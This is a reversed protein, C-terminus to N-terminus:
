GNRRLLVIGAIIMLPPIIIEMSVGLHNILVLTGMGILIGGLKRVNRHKSLTVSAFTESENSPSVNSSPVIVSAPKPTEFDLKITEGISAVSAAQQIPQGTQPDFKYATPHPPEQVFVNANPVRQHKFANPEAVSRGNPLMNPMSHTQESPRAQKPMVLWLLSYVPIGIGSTLTVLVFIFRVIVPDIAFYDALGGCVGVVMVDSKSRTLRQM